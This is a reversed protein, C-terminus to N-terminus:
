AWDGIILANQFQVAYGAILEARDTGNIIRRAAVFQPQSARDRPLYDDLSKGTFAGQEMGKVLIKTAIGPDLALDFNDLLANDLRLEKDAWEYNRDWTLQVLGRGYQPQGYKGRAAYPRGRGKGIEEIPRLRAEHWATALGYALWSVPWHSAAALLANITDVQTQDLGKTIGSRVSAFFAAPQRLTRTTTKTGIGLSKVIAALTAPGIIGDPTVGVHRQIDSIISM